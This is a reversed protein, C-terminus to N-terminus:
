VFVVNFSRLDKILYGDEGQNRADELSQEFLERLDNASTSGQKGIFVLETKEPGNSSREIERLRLTGRRGHGASRGLRPDFLAFVGDSLLSIRGPDFTGHKM